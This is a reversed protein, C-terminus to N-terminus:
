EVKITFDEESVLAIADSMKRPLTEDIQQNQVNVQPSKLVIMGNNSGKYSISAAGPAMVNIMNTSRGTNGGLQNSLMATEGRNSLKDPRFLPSFETNITTIPNPIPEPTKKTHDLFQFQGTTVYLPDTDKADIHQSPQPRQTSPHSSVYGNPQLTM